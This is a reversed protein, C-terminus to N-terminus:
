DLKLNIWGWGSVNLKMTNEEFSYSEVQSLIVALKISFDSDCCIKTCGPGSMSIGNEGSLTFSGFCSNRDLKLLFSGDAAFEIVPSYNDTKAYYMSEVSMFDVVEWKNFIDDAVRHERKECSLCFIIVLFVFVLATYNKM